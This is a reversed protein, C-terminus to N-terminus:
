VFFRVFDSFDATHPAQKHSCDYLIPSNPPTRRKNTHFITCFRLFRRHAASTQTFLRVFDSFDATHPAQKHSCDYLIPSIPTTRRKNTHVITCFRLFRHQAASTQTFFRVFDPFEITHPAQKHSFDYLIPSIPPTRRKNTHVITCFRLFRHQAASTQTFFRVFDSSEATHPM